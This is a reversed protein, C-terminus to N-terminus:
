KPKNLNLIFALVVYFFVNTALAVEKFVFLSLISFAAFIYKIKNNAWAWSKTKLSFLPLESVMLLSIAVISVYLFVPQVIYEALGFRNNASILVLGMVYVTSSPTPLGIFHEEQRTDVNFKGLRLAAFLTVLFGPLAGVFFSHETDFAQLLLYYMMAGPVLGFSVMDALSDLEKGIPNSVGLIRAALGDWFDAFISGFIFWCALVLEGQLVAVVACCGLFLNILTIINPVHQKM